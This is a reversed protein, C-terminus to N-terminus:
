GVNAGGNRGLTAQSWVGRQAAPWCSSRIARGPEPASGHFTAGSDRVHRGHEGRRVQGRRAAVAKSHTLSSAPILRKAQATRTVDSKSGRNATM